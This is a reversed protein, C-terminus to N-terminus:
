RRFYAAVDQAAKASLLLTDSFRSPEYPLTGIVNAAIAREENRRRDPALQARLEAILDIPKMCLFVGFMGYNLHSLASPPPKNRIFVRARFDAAFLTGSCCLFPPRKGRFAQQGAM